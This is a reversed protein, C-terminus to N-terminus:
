IVTTLVYISTSNYRDPIPFKNQINKLFFFSFSLSFIGGFVWFQALQIIMSYYYKEEGQAMEKENHFEVIKVKKKIYLRFDIPEIYAKENRPNM